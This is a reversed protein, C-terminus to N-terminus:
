YGDWDNGKLQDEQKIYSSKTYARAYEYIYDLDKGQLRNLISLIDWIKDDLPSDQDFTITKSHQMKM